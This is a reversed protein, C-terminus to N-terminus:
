AAALAKMKERHSMRRGKKERAPPQWGHQKAMHFLTGLTVGETTTRDFSKFKREVEGKYGPSWSEVLSIGDYGPMVSHVAMLVRLWDYYDQKVPIYQIAEKIQAEDVTQPKYVTTRAAQKTNGGFCAHLALLEKTRDPFPYDKPGPYFLNGTVTFYRLENYIEVGEEKNTVSGPIDGKVFIHLGNGSPSCETFGGLMHYIDRPWPKLKKAGPEFCDDLDVGVFGAKLTFVFGMGTWSHRQVASWAKNATAWTAPNNSQANGGNHPNKPVKTQKDAGPRQEANWGIWQPISKLIDYGQKQNYEQDSM